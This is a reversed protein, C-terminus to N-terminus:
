KQKCFLVMSPKTIENSPVRSFDYYLSDGNPKIIFAYDYEFNGNLGFDFRRNFGEISFRSNHKVGAVRITGSTRGENVDAKVLINKWNGYSNEQCIWSEITEAISYNSSSIILFTIFLITRGM